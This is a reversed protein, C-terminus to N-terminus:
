IERGTSSEPFLLRVSCALASNVSPFCSALFRTSFNQPHSSATHRPLRWALRPVCFASAPVLVRGGQVASACDCVERRYQFAFGHFRIKRKGSRRFNFGLTEYRDNEIAALQDEFLMKSEYLLRGILTSKGDDVSGCTIFRLLSKQGQAHPYAGPDRANPAAPRPM